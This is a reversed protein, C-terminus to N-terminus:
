ENEESCLRAHPRTVRIALQAGREVTARRNKSSVSHAIESCHSKNCMLLVLFKQFGSPLMLKTKKSSGYGTNFTLIQDKFRRHRRNDTDRPKQWNRKIKVYGDSQHWIFKQDEKECDQVEGSTQPCSTYDM